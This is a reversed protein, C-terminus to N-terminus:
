GLRRGTIKLPLSHAEQDWFSLGSALHERLLHKNEVVSVPQESDLMYTM